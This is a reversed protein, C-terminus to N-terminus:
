SSPAGWSAVVVNRRRRSCAGVPEGLRGGFGHEWFAKQSGSEDPRRGGVCGNEGFGKPIRTPMRPNHDM